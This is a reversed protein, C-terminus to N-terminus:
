ELEPCSQRDTHIYSNESRLGLGCLLRPRDQLAAGEESGKQTHGARLIQLTKVDPREKSSEARLLLHAGM